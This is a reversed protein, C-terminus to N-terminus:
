KSSLLQFSKYFKETNAKNMKNSVVEFVYVFSKVVILKVDVQGNKYQIVSHMGRYEHYQIDEQSVVKSKVEEAIPVIISRFLRDRIEKSLSSGLLKKYDTYIMTYTQASEDPNPNSCSYTYMDIVKGGLNMTDKSIEPQHPFLMTCHGGKSTIKTWEATFSCCYFAVSIVVFLFSCKKM